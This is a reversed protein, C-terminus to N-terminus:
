PLLAGLALMCSLLLMVQLSIFFMKRAWIINDDTAFGRLGHWLWLLGAVTMTILYIYGTYGLVTLLANCLVFSVIFGIIQLKTSRMGKKLPWVPINAAAYDQSRYMAIAYFHPMQWSTLILFLLVAAGDLENTLAVYGGVPPLAGSVSGVLTGYMTKRKALGYVVVYMIIAALGLLVTLTNTFFFLIGFGALGLIAAYLIANRPSIADRVLARKKTRSMKADIGRDIYNNCVCASAIVLAIGCVAAIGVGINFDHMLSAALFFGAAAAFTNGYVIGPKVLQYYVRLRSGM